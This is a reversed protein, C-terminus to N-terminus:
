FKKNMHFLDGRANRMKSYELTYKEKLIWTFESHNACVHDGVATVKSVQIEWQCGM